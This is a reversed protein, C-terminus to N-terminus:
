QLPMIRKMSNGIRIKLETLSLPKTIYDDAGLSFAEEVVDEQGMVSFVIVIIKKETMAKVASIVELGSVYPLMIDTLVVDPLESSIKELADKGDTCCIVEYGDKILKLEVTKLMLPNDEVVLVKM